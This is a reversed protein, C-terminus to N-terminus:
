VEFNFSGEYINVAGLAVSTEVVEESLTIVTKNDCYIDLLMSIAQKFHSQGGIVIVSNACNMIAKVENCLVVGLLYAYCFEKTANFINKMVRTKFLAENIGLSSCFDFGLKLADKDISAHEFDTAGNLITHQIVASFLEGSMMTRIDTINGNKDVLLHKSHSGPLIYMADQGVQQVIGMIETEEGRVMDACELSTCKTKIGRIFVWDIQSIEQFSAVCVSRNLARLDVPLEIHSIECMGYESTIMGSALIKSVEQSDLHNRNLIASIGEKLYKKLNDVGNNIGASLKIADTVKRERVLYLRTNTTGGDVTIYTAM